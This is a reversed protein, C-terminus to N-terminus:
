HTQFDGLEMHINKMPSFVFTVEGSVSGGWLIGMLRVKGGNGLVRFVPSGSDGGAVGARVRDQCRQPSIVRSWRDNTSLFIVGVTLTGEDTPSHSTLRPPDEDPM